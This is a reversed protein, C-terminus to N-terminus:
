RMYIVKGVIDAASNMLDSDANCIDAIFCLATMKGRRISLCVPVTYCAPDFHDLISLRVAFIYHDICINLFLSEIDLSINHACFVTRNSDASFAKVAICYMCGFSLCKSEAASLYVSNIFHAFIAQKPALMGRCKILQFEIHVAVAFSNYCTHTLELCVATLEKYVSLFSEESSLM